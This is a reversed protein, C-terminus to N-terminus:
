NIIGIKRGFEMTRNVLNENSKKDGNLEKFFLELGSEGFGKSLIYVSCLCTLGVSSAMIDIDKNGFQVLALQYAKESYEKVIKNIDGLTACQLKIFVELFRDLSVEVIDMNNIEAIRRNLKAFAGFDIYAKFTDGNLEIEDFNGSSVISKVKKRYEEISVRLRKFEDDAMELIGALRNIGRLYEKPIEVDTKYGMDHHVTAWAHQLVTKIQIEFPIENIETNNKNYYLSKPIRCIFHLSMYGFQDTSLAKRKDISNAWDVDFVTELSSAIKDVEDSYFTIVRAGLIDTIDKIDKYKYGKLELKGTLSKETKIRSEIGCVVMGFNNVVRKIEATVIEQVKKYTEINQKYQELIHKSSADLM